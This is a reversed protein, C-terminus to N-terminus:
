ARKAGPGRDPLWAQPVAAAAKPPSSGEALKAELEKVRKNAADREPALLKLQVESRGPLDRAWFWPPSQEVSANSGARKIARELVSDLENDIQALKERLREVDGEFERELEGELRQPFDIYFVSTAGGVALVVLLVLTAVLFAWLPRM